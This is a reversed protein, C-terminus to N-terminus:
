RKLILLKNHFLLVRQNNEKNKYIRFINSVITNLNRKSNSVHHARKSSRMM